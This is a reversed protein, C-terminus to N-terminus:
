GLLATGIPNMGYVNFERPRPSGGFQIWVGGRNSSLFGALVRRPLGSIDRASM